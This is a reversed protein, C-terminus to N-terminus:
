LYMPTNSSINIESTSFIDIENKRRDDERSLEKGEGKISELPPYPKCCFRPTGQLLLHLPCQLHQQPSTGRHM